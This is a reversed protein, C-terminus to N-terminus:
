RESFTNFHQQALITTPVLVAVQKGEQVAKFAGRIAIETKGFGVDGCILRDMIHASEMDRKMDAIATLQDETEEYPFAEEFEQQWVTDPAFRYGSTQMRKAYLAVLDEAIGDVAGQVKAKTKAWEGSGLKNLKPKRGEKEEGGSAYKQIVSLGTAAIFLSGGEAYEIRLYDKRVKDVEVQEVGRYIGLGYDEHVVYDGVTLDAFDSIGGDGRYKKKKRKKKEQRVTFIDSESIVAFKLEPYSFGQRIQGYYTMIEGPSLTRNPDESYFATVMHDALNEVLRKARTRSGSLLLIRYGEKRYRQLDKVLLEFNNNYPALARAPVSLTLVEEGNGAFMEEAEKTHLSETLVRRFSSLRHLLSATDNLLAMQGPLADGTAARLTMSERFETEVAEAHEKVRLPEDIIVCCDEPSFLDTLAAPTEYFYRLFSELNVHMSLSFLQERMEDTRTKLHHAEETHMQERLTKEQREAEKEIRRFGEALTDDDLIMETAPFIMTKALTEISRQTQADFSRISDIEDGWLEMRVPNEQTVDFIDILDGRIAFQGPTEAQHTREYGMSALRRAIDSPVTKGKEFTLISDRIVQMPVLPSMLAAFTTVVTLRRDSLIRRICRMRARSTEGAHIDAQYFILDKGPFFVVDRDYFSFAECIEKARLEAYTVLVRYRFPACLADTLHPKVADALDTVHVVAGEKQLRQELQEFAALERLPARLAKM